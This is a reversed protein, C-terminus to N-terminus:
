SYRVATNIRPLIFVAVNLSIAVLYFVQLAGLVLVRGLGEFGARRVVNADGEGVLNLVFSTVTSILVTLQLFFIQNVSEPRMANGRHSTVLGFFVILEDLITFYSTALVALHSSRLRAYIALALVIATIFAASLRVLTENSGDCSATTNALFSPTANVPFAFVTANESALWTACYSVMELDNYQSMWQYALSSTRPITWDCWCDYTVNTLFDATELSLFLNGIMPVMISLTIYELSYVVTVPKSEDNEAAAIM